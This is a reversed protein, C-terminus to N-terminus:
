SFYGDFKAELRQIDGRVKEFSNKMGVKMEGVERNLNGFNSFLKIIFAGFLGVVGSIIQFDTPSNGFIRALFMYVVLILFIVIIINLIWNILKRFNKQKVM